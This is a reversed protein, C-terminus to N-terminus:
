LTALETKVGDLTRKYDVYDELFNLYDIQSNFLQSIKDAMLWEAEYNGLYNALSSYKYNKWNNPNLHIYRSIHELYSEKSILSARYRSEFLPGRRKYTKNFYRSYSTMLCHMLQQVMWQEQQYLLLHVHNPMLCFSLLELKGYFHPYEIGKKDKAPEASLYRKFLALFVVYDKEDKFITRRNVGRSYVHYYSDAVDVRLLNRGPM